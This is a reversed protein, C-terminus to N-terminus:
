IAMTYPDNFEAQLGRQVSDQIRTDLDDVGYITAGQM